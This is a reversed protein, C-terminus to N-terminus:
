TCNMDPCKGQALDTVLAATMANVLGKHYLVWVEYIVDRIRNFTYLFCLVLFERGLQEEEATLPNEKQIPAKVKAKPIPTQQQQGGDNMDVKDWKRMKDLLDDQEDQSKSSESPLTIFVLTPTDNEGNRAKNIDPVLHKLVAMLAELSGNFYEHGPDATNNHKHYQTVERRSRIADGLDDLGSTDALPVSTAAIANVLQAQKQLPIRYGKKNKKKKAQDTVVNAIEVGRQFATKLLWAQFQDTYTKYRKVTEPLENQRYYDMDGVPLTLPQPFPYPALLSSSSFRHRYIFSTPCVHLHVLAFDCPYRHKKIHHLTFSSYPRSVL